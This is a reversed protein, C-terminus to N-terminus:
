KFTGSAPAIMQHVYSDIHIIGRNMFEDTNAVFCIADANQLEIAKSLLREAGEINRDCVEGLYLEKGLLYLAPPYNNSASRNLWNIYELQNKAIGDGSHYKLALKYQATMENHNAM